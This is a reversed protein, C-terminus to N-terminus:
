PTCPVEVPQMNSVRWRGGSHVLAVYYDLTPLGFSDPVVRGTKKDLVGFHSLDLCDHLIAKQGTIQVSKVHTVAGGYAVDHAAWVKKLSKILTKLSAAATYPALIIRAQQAKSSTMAEAYAQWYAAYATAVLQRPTQPATATVPAVGPQGGKPPLAVTAPQGGCAAVACALAVSALSAGALAKGAAARDALGRRARHRSRESLPAKGDNLSYM